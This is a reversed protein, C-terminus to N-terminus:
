AFYFLLQLFVHQTSLYGLTTDILFDPIGKNILSSLLFVKSIVLPQIHVASPFPVFTDKLVVYPQRFFIFDCKLCQTQM